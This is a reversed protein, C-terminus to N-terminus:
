NDMLYRVLGEWDRNEFFPKLNEADAKVAKAFDGLYRDLDGVKSKITLSEGLGDMFGNKKFYDEFIERMCAKLYENSFVVELFKLPHVHRVSDGLENMYTKHGLLWLKGHEAMAKILDSISTRDKEDCYLKNYPAEERPKPKIFGAKEIPINKHVAHSKMGDGSAKSIAEYVLYYCENDQSMAQKTYNYAIEQTHGNFLLAM